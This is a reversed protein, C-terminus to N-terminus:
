KSNEVLDVPLTITFRTGQQSSECEISGKLYNVHKKVITLGLGSSNKLGSHFRKFPKYMDAQFSQPIGLGNDEVDITLMSGKLTLAIRVFHESKTEDKYKIGNSVLNDIIQEIRAKESYFSDPCDSTVLVKCNNETAALELRQKVRDLLDQLNITEADHEEVDARVLAVIDSVLTEMKVMLQKIKQNGSLASQLKGSKIDKQMYDLLRKSSTIPAKLDHSTRYAFQRLEDNVKNLRASYKEQAAIHIRMELNSAVQRSLRILLEKQEHNLEKPHDDIVCLTGVRHGEPTIIPAGAYFVVHPAGVVLPNDHFREDKTADPVYFLEDNHIAHSCFAVSRPTETADLGVRSKFWQRDKDILSVLSIKTQCLYSAIQTIDDFLQESPTDLVEYAVLKKLRSIEDAPQPAEIM